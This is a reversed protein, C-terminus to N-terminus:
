ELATIGNMHEIQSNVVKFFYSEMKSYSWELIMGSEIKKALNEVAEEFNKGIGCPTSLSRNNQKYKFGFLTVAYDGNTQLISVSFQFNFKRMFKNLQEKNM